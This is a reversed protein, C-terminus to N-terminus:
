GPAAAERGIADSIEREVAAVMTDLADCVTERADAGTALRRDVAAVLDGWSRGTADTHQRCAAELRERHGDSARRIRWWEAYVAALATIALDIDMDM